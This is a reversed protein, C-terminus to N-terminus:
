CVMYTPLRCLQRAPRGKLGAREVSCQSWWDRICTECTAICIYLFIYSLLQCMYELNVQVKM